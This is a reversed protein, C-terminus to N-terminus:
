YFTNTWAVLLSRGNIKCFNERRRCYFLISLTKSDCVLTNINFSNESTNSQITWFTNCVPVIFDSERALTLSQSIYIDYHNYNIIIISHTHLLAITFTNLFHIKYVLNLMYFLFVEYSYYLSYDFKRKMFLLKNMKIDFYSSKRM